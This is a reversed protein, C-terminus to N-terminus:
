LRYYRMEKINIKGINLDDFEQHKKLYAKVFPCLVVIEFGKQRAYELGAKALSSAIGQGSLKEPVWTHMFYM